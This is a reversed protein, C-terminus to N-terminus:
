LEDSYDEDGRVRAQASIEEKTAILNKFVVHVSSVHLGTLKSIEKVILTQIEEAKEPLSSGYIVSVEVKVKVAHNKQDQEISVGKAKELGDRGLFSDILNGEVLSVGEIKEICQIVISQFVRSDIDRIFLTDPLEFEKTDMGKFKENM